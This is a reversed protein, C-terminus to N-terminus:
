AATLAAEKVLDLQDAAQPAHETMELARAALMVMYDGYSLDAVKARQKLVQGFELPPKALISDRGDKSTVDEVPRVKRMSPEPVFELMGLQEAALKVMFEGNSLREEVARQRIVKGIDLHPRALIADRVGKSPRGIGKEMTAVSNDAPKEYLSRCAGLDDKRYRERISQLQGARHSLSPAGLAPASQRARHEQLAM